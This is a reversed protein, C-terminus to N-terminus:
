GFYNSIIEWRGDAQYCATGDGSEVADSFAVTSRFHRCTQGNLAKFTQTPRFAGSNGTEPNQWNSTIGNDAEALAQEATRRYFAMDSEKLIRGVEYGGVAGSVAGAGIYALQGLGGGFQAGAYGGVAAGVVAGAMEMSMKQNECASTTVLALICFALKSRM